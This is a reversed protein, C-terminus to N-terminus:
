RPTAGHTHGAGRLHGPLTAVSQETRLWTLLDAAASESRVLAYVGGLRVVLSEFRIQNPQQRGIPTKMEVALFRGRYLGLYDAGGDGVGYEIPAKRPTGNPFHTDFGRTNRWLTAGTGGCLIRLVLPTIQEELVRNHCVACTGDVLWRRARASCTCGRSHATTRTM